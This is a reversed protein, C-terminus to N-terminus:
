MKKCIIDSSINSQVENFKKDFVKKVRLPIFHEM